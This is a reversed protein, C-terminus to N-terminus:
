RWAAGFGVVKAYLTTYRRAWSMAADGWVLAINRGTTKAAGGSRNSAVDDTNHQVAECLHWAEARQAGGGSRGTSVAESSLMIDDWVDADELSTCEVPVGVAETHLAASWDLALHKASLATGSSVVSVDRAWTQRVSNREPRRQNLFSSLFQYILVNYAPFGVIYNIAIESSLLLYM